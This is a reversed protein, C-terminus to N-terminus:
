VTAHQPVIELDKDFKQLILMKQVLFRSTSELWAFHKGTVFVL